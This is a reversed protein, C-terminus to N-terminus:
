FISCCAQKEKKARGTKSQRTGTSEDTDMREERQHEREIAALRRKNNREKLNDLLTQRQEILEKMDNIEEDLKEVQKNMEAEKDAVYGRKTSLVRKKNDMDDIEIEVLKKKNELDKINKESEKEVLNTLFEVLFKEKEKNFEVYEDLKSKGKANEEYYKIFGIFDDIINGVSQVGQYGNQYFNTEVNHFSENLVNQCFQSSYTINQKTLKSKIKEIEQNLEVRKKELLNSYTILSFTDINMKYVNNFINLAEYHYKNLLSDLEGQDYVRNPGLKIKDTNSKFYHRAKLYSENIDNEIINDWSNSINPIKKSNITKVFEEVLCALAPGNLKKGKYKKPLAEKFIKDKLKKFEM